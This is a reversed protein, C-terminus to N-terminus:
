QRKAKAAEMETDSEAAAVKASTTHGKGHSQRSKQYKALVDVGLGAFVMSVGTWQAANLQHGYMVVSLLITFFKRTTTLTVVVLSNFCLLTLLIFAQGSSACLGFLVLDWMASPNALVFTIVHPLQNLLLMTAAILVLAWANLYLMMRWMSVQPYQRSLKEQAPATYADLGLSLLCLFLGLFSTEPGGSRGGGKGGGLMFVAIGSTVAVVQIIETRSYKVGRVLLFRAVMVPIMKCSKALAQAPYSMYGLALNSCFMAGIYSASMFFYHGIPPGTAPSISPNSSSSSSPASRSPFLFGAVAAFAANMMCQCFVLFLSFNLSPNDRAYTAYMREQLIGYGLFTAYIGGACGVLLAARKWFSKDNATISKVAPSHSHSHSSSPMAPVAADAEANGNREVKRQRLEVNSTSGDVTSHQRAM